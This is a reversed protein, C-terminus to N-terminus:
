VSTRVTIGNNRSLDKLRFSKSSGQTSLLNIRPPQDHCKDITYHIYVNRQQTCGSRLVKSIPVIRSSSLLVVNEKTIIQDRLCFNPCGFISTPVLEMDALRFVVCPDITLHGTEDRM